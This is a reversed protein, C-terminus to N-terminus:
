STPHPAQWARDVSQSAIGVIARIIVSVALWAVKLADWALVLVVMNLWGPAGASVADAVVHMTLLLVTALGLLVAGTRWRPQASRVRRVLLNSPAVVQVLRHVLAVAVIVPIAFLILM